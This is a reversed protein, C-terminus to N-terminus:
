VDDRAPNVGHMLDEEQLFADGGVELVGVNVDLENGFSERNVAANGEYQLDV